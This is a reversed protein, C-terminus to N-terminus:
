HWREPTFEWGRSSNSWVAPGFLEGARYREIRGAEWTFGGPAAVWHGGVWFEDQYNIPHLPTEVKLLPPQDASVVTVRDNQSTLATVMRDPAPTAQYDNAPSGSESRIQSDAADAHMRHRDDHRDSPKQRDYSRSENRPAVSAPDHSSHTMRM